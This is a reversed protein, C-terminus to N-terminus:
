KISSVMVSLLQDASPFWEYKLDINYNKSAEIDPNGRTIQGTASVYEFPAIEKFEPLTITRSAALRLSQDENLSYKINATLYVNDYEQLSNGLRGPVNNVDYDVNIYDRQYRLGAYISYKNREFNFAAFASKSDLEADYLDTPIVNFQLLGNEFNASTFISNM